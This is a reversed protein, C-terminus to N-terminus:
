TLGENDVRHMTHPYTTVHVSRTPRGDAKMLGQKVQIIARGIRLMMSLVLYMGLGCLPCVWDIHLTRDFPVPGRNGMAYVMRLACVLSAAGVATWFCRRHGADPAAFLVIGYVVFFFLTTVFVWCALFMVAAPIEEGRFGFGVCTFSALMAALM